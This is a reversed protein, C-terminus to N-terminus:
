RLCVRVAESVCAVDADTLGPHLPLRLLTAAVRETVPLAPPRGDALSRGFPSSHLPVYHFSAPVGALRLSGLARDRAAAEPFLMFFIHYASRGDPLEDFLRVGHHSDPLGFIRLEYSWVNILRARWGSPIETSLGCSDGPWAKPEGVARAFKFLQDCLAQGRATAAYFYDIAPLPAVSIGIQRFDEPTPMADLQRRM